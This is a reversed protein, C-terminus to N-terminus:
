SPALSSPPGLLGTRLREDTLLSGKVRYFVDRFGFELEGTAGAASTSSEALGNM